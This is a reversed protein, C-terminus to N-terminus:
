DIDLPKPCAKKLEDRFRAREVVLAHLIQLELQNVELASTLPAIATKLLALEAQNTSVTVNCGYEVFACIKVHSDDPMDWKDETAKMIHRLAVTANHYQVITSDREATMRFAGNM